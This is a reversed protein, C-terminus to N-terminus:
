FWQSIFCCKEKGKGTDIQEWGREWGVTFNRPKDSQKGRFAGQYKMFLGPIGVGVASGTLAVGWVIEIWKVTTKGKTRRTLRVQTEQMM